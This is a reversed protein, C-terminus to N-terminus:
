LVGHVRMDPARMIHTEGERLRSIVHEDFMKRFVDVAINGIIVTRKGSAHRAVLIRQIVNKSYETWENGAKIEDIVLLPIECYKQIVSFESRDSDTFTAKLEDMLRYMEVFLADYPKNYNYQNVLGSAFLTKGNGVTGLVTLCWWEGKLLELLKKQYVHQEENRAKIEDLYEGKYLAPVGTVRSMRFDKERM